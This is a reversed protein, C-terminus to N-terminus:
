DYKASFDRYQENKACEIEAQRFYINKACFWTSMGAAITVL